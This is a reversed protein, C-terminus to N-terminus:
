DNSPKLLIFARLIGTGELSYYCLLGTEVVIWGPFDAM